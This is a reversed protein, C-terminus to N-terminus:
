LIQFDLGWAENRFVQLIYLVVPKITEGHM